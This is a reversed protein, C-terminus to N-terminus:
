SSAMYSELARLTKEVQVILKGLSDLSIRGAIMPCANIGSYETVARYGPEWKSGRLSRPLGDAVLLSPPLGGM